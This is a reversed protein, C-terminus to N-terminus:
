MTREIVNAAVFLVGAIAFVAANVAAYKANSCTVVQVGTVICVAIMVAEFFRM